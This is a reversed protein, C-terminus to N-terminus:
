ELCCCLWLKLTLGFGRHTINTHCLMYIPTMLVLVFVREGSIILVAGKEKQSYLIVQQRRIGFSIFQCSAKPAVALSVFRPLPGQTTTSETPYTSFSILLRCKVTLLFVQALKYYEMSVSAYLQMSADDLRM